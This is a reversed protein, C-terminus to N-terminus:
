DSLIRLSKLLVSLTFSAYSLSSCFSAFVQFIISWRIVSSSDRFCKLFMKFNMKESHSAFRWCKNSSIQFFSSALYETGDRAAQDRAILESRGSLQENGTWFRLWSFPSIGETPIPVVREWRGQDGAVERYM